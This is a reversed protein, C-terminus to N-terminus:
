RLYLPNFYCMKEDNIKVRNYMNLFIDTEMFLTKLKKRILFM